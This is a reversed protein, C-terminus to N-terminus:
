ERRCPASRARWARRRANQIQHDGVRQDDVVPADDFAIDSNAVAPDDLDALRAIRVRHVADIRFQHHARGGLHDRAFVQDDGRARMSLWM